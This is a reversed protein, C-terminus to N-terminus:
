NRLFLEAAVRMKMPQLLNVLVLVSHLGFAFALRNFSPLNKPLPAEFICSHHWGTNRCSVYKAPERELPLSIYSLVNMQVIAFAM